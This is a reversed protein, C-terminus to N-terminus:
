TAPPLRYVELIGDQNILGLLSGDPSLALASISKMGQKKASLALVPQLGPVDYAVILDLAFPGVLDLDLGRVKGKEMSLAVRRGGASTAFFRYIDDDPFERQSLVEGDRRTV